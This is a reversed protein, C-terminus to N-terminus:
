IVTGHLWVKFCLENPLAQFPDKKLRPSVLHHLFSLLHNDCSDVIESLWAEKGAVSLRSFVLRFDRLVNDELEMTPNNWVNTRQHPTPSPAPTPPSAPASPLLPNPINQPMTPPIGTNPTPPPKPHTHRISGKRGPAQQVTVPAPVARGATFSDDDSDVGPLQLRGRSLRRDM